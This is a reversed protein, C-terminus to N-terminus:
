EIEPEIPECLIRYEVTQMPNEALVAEARESGGLGLADQYVAWHQKFLPDRNTFDQDHLPHWGARHLYWNLYEKPMISYHNRGRTGWYDPAPAVLILWGKCVRKWEMLTIVPFPSHELVHRAFLLDFSNDEFSDLFSMDENYVNLGKEKCVLYDEGLTVGTWDWGMSEFVPQLFGQGCGIDLINECNQPISGLTAVAQKAWATHGEDEPQAYVDQVLNNVYSDFREYNRM